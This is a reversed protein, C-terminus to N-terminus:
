PGPVALVRVGDREYVVPYRGSALVGDLPPTGPHGSHYVYQVGAAQLLQVTEPAGPADRLARAVAVMQGVAHSDVGREGAYLMPLVTTPRAALLPLWYGGDIGVVYDPAWPVLVSTVALRADVPTQARLWAAAAVDAERVLANAPTVLTQLQWAGVLTSVGAAAGAVMWTARASRLHGARLGAALAIAAGVALPFCLGVLVTVLDVRGLVPLRVPWWYPNALAVQVFAWLGLGLIVWARQKWVLVFGVAALLLLPLNTPQAAASGLRELGFYDAGYEGAQAGLGLSLAGPLRWLWPVTLLAAGLLPLLVGRVTLWSWPAVRAGPVVAAPKFTLDKRSSGLLRWVSLMTLWVGFLLLLTAALRYHVLFLGGIAIAAAAVIRWRDSRRSCDTTDPRLPGAAGLTDQRRAGVALGMADLCLAAAVPLLLLGAAQTFRGWNVLYAPFVALLAVLWAALFATTTEGTARRVFFAVAFAVAANVLHGTLGVLEGVNTGSWWHLWAALSHFGFHYAFSDIPAYPAYSEPVGGQQVLLLAILTHHYTDAGLTPLIDRTSWLRLAVAITFLGLFAALPAGDRRLSATSASWTQWGRAVLVALAALLLLHASGPGLRLGLTTAWLTLLALLALTLAPAALARDLLRFRPAPLLLTALALGPLFAFVLALGLLFPSPLGAALTVTPSSTATQELVGLM